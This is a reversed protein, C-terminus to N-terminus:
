CVLGDAHQVSCSSNRRAVCGTMTFILRVQSKVKINVHELNGVDPKTEDTDAM